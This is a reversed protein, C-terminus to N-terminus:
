ALALGQTGVGTSYFYTFLYISCALRQFMDSGNQHSHFFGLAWFTFPIGKPPLHRKVQILPLSIIVVCMTIFLSLPGRFCETMDFFFTM